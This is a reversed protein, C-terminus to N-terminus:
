YNDKLNIYKNLNLFNLIYLYIYLGVDPDGDNDYIKIQNIDLCLSGLNSKLQFTSPHTHTQWM